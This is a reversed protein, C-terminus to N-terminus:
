LLGRRNRVLVTLDDGDERLEWAAGAPILAALGARDYAHFVMGAWKGSTYVRDGDATLTHIERDYEEDAADVTFVALGGPRTIRLLEAAARRADALPMHDLVDRCVVADFAGSAYGTDRVRGGNQAGRGARRRTCAGGGRARHRLRFRCFGGAAASRQARRLRLRRRLGYASRRGAFAHDAPRVGDGGRRSM